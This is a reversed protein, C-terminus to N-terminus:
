LTFGLIKLDSNNMFIPSLIKLLILYKLGGFMCNFGNIVSETIVFERKYSLVDNQGIAYIEEYVSRNYRFESKVFAKPWVSTHTIFPNFQIQFNFIKMHVGNFREM